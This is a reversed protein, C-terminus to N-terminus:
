AVLQPKSKRTRTFAPSLIQTVPFQSTPFFILSLPVMGTPHTGGAQWSYGTTDWTQPTPLYGGRQVYGGETGHQPPPQTDELCICGGQAYGKSMGVGQVYTLNYAYVICVVMYVYLGNVIFLSVGAYLWFVSMCHQVRLCLM